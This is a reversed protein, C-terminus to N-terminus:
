APGKAAQAKSEIAPIADTIPEVSNEPVVIAAPALIEALPSVGFFVRM